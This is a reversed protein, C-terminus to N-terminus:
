THTKKENESASQMRRYLIWVEICLSLLLSSVLATAFAFVHEKVADVYLVLGMVILLLLAMRSLMGGFIILLFRNDNFRYAFKSTLFFVLGYFGGVSLGLCVSLWTEPSINVIQKVNKCPKKYLGKTGSPSFQMCLARLAM